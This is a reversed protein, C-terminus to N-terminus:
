PNEGVMTQLINRFGSDMLPQIYLFGVRSISSDDSEWVKWPWLQWLQVVHESTGVHAYKELGPSPIWRNSRWGVLISVVFRSFFVPALCCCMRQQYEPSISIWGVLLMIYCSTVLHLLHKVWWFSPMLSYFYAFKITQQTPFGAIGHNNDVFFHLRYRMKKYWETRKFFLCCQYSVHRNSSGVNEPTATHSKDVRTEQKQPHELSDAQLKGAVFTQAMACRGSVVGSRGTWDFRRTSYGSCRLIGPDIVPDEDSWRYEDITHNEACTAWTSLPKSMRADVHM